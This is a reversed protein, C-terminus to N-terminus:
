ASSVVLGLNANLICNALRVLTMTAPVAGIYALVANDSSMAFFGLARRSQKSPVAACKVMKVLSAQMCPVAQAPFVQIVNWHDSV